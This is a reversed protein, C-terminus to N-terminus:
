NPKIEIWSVIQIQFNEVLQSVPCLISKINQSFSLAEVSDTLFFHFASETCIFIVNKFIPQTWMIKWM